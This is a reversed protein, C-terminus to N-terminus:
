MKSDLATTAVNILNQMTEGSIDVTDAISALHDCAIQCASEFGDAIRIPHIGHDLLREAKELLEGALVVVGEYILYLVHVLPAMVLKTM